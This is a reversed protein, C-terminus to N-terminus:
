EVRQHVIVHDSEAPQIHDIVLHNTEYDLGGAAKMLGDIKGFGNIGAQPHRLQAIGRHAMLDAQEPFALRMGGGGAMEDMDKDLAAHLPRHRNRRLDPGAELLDQHLRLRSAAACLALHGYILRCECPSSPMSAAMTMQT